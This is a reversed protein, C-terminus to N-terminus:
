YLALNIRGVLVEIATSGHLDLIEDLTLRGNAVVFFQRIMKCVSSGPWEAGGGGLWVRELGAWKWKM